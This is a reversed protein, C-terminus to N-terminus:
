TRLRKARVIARARTQPYPLSPPRQQQAIAALQSKRERDVEREEFAPSLLLDLLTAQGLAFDESMIDLSVGHSNNGSFTDVHGGASEIASAIKEASRQRTGKLMSKSMLRTMGNNEKKEVLLGSKIGARFHVFPLFRGEPPAFM